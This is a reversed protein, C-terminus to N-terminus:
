RAAPPVTEYAVGRASGSTPEQTTLAEAGIKSAAYAKVGDSATPSTMTVGLFTRAEERQQPTGSGLRKAWGDIVQKQADLIEGKEAYKRFQADRTKGYLGAKKDVLEKKLIAEPIQNLTAEVLQLGKDEPSLTGRPTKSTDPPRYYEVDTRSNAKLNNNFQVISADRGALLGAKADHFFSTPDAGGLMAKTANIAGEDLSGMQGIVRLNTMIFAQNAKMKQWDDSKFFASEGGHEAIGRVMDNTLQNITDVAAKQKATEKASDKDRDLYESGDVNRIVDYRVSKTGDPNLVEKVVGGIAREDIQKAQERMAKAAPADGSAELKKAELLRANAADERGLDFQRKAEKDRAAQLGVGAQQIAIQKRKFEVEQAKEAAGSVLQQAQARLVSAEREALLRKEPSTHRMSATVLDRAASNLGEAFKIDAATRLDGTEQRYADISSRRRDATRGLQEREDVQAAVDDKIAQQIMQIAMNPGSKFQLADGLGSLAVAIGAMVKSGTDLNHWRRGQDVKYNSEADIAKEYAMRKDAVGKAREAELAERNALARQADVDRKKSIEFQEDARAAEVDGLAQTAQAQRQLEGQMGQTAGEIRGEPSAEYARQRAQGQEFARNQRVNQAGFTAQSPARFDPTTQVPPPAPAAFPTEPPAPPQGIGLNALVEPPLQDVVSPIPATAVPAIGGGFDVPPPAPLGPFQDPVFIVQGDPTTIQPM